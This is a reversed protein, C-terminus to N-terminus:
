KEGPIYDFETHGDIHAYIQESDINVNPTQQTM